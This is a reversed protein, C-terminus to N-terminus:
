TKMCAHIRQVNKLKTADKTTVTLLNRLSFSWLLSWVTRPSFAVNLHLSVYRQMGEPDAALGDFTASEFLLNFTELVSIVANNSGFNKEARGVLDAALSRVDYTKTSSAIM